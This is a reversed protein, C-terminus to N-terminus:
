YSIYFNIHKEQVKGCIRRMFLLLKMVNMFLEYNEIINRCQEESFIQAIIHYESGYYASNGKTIFIASYM